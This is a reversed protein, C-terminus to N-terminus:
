WSENEANAKLVIAIRCRDKHAILAKAPHPCIFHVSM